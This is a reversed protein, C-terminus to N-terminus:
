LSSELSKWEISKGREKNAKRRVKNPTKTEKKIRKGEAPFTKLQANLCGSILSNMLILCVIVWSSNEQYKFLKEGSSRDSLLIQIKIKLTLSNFLPCDNPLGFDGEIKCSVNRRSGEGHLVRSLNIRDDENPFM